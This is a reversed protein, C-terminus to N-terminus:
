IIYNILFVGFLVYIIYTVIVAFINKNAKYLYTLTMMIVGPTISYFLASEFTGGRSLGYLIGYTLGCLISATFNKKFISSFGLPFIVCLLFPIFIVNKLFNLIFTLTFKQHFYDVFYYGVKLGKSAGISNLLDHLVITIVILFIFTAVSYILNNLFTKNYQRHGHVIYKYYIFFIIVSMLAYKITDAILYAIGKLHLGFLGLFKFYFFHFLVIVLISLLLEIIGSTKGKM